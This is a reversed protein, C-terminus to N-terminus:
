PCSEHRRPDGCPRTRESPARDRRRELWRAYSALRDDDVLSPPQDLTGLFSEALDGDAARAYAAEFGRVILDGLEPPLPACRSRFRSSFRATWTPRDVGALFSLLPPFSTEGSEDVLLPAAEYRLPPLAPEWRAELCESHAVTTVPPTVLVLKHGLRGGQAFALRRGEINGAREPRMLNSGHCGTIGFSGFEYFPDARSERPDRPDPRRLHVLIVENPSTGCEPLRPHNSAHLLVGQRRFWRLFAEPDILRPPVASRQIFGDKVSLGGWAELLDRRVRYAGRRREGIAIARDCLGTEERRGIVIVDTPRPHLRRTHANRCRHHPPVDAAREVSRVVLLGIIGYFLPGRPDEVDRLGSYFALVDGPTLSRLITGRRRGDDGYTGAGFDPDLHTRRRWLPRPFGLDDYLDVRHRACFSELFPRQDTYSTRMGPLDGQPQEEPIPVYVFEGTSGCVPANWGGFAQDIGVRVLHGRM